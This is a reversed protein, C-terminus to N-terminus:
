FFLTVALCSLGVGAVAAGVAGMRINGRIKDEYYLSLRASNDDGSYQRFYTNMHALNVAYVTMGAATVGLASANIILRVTTKHRCPPKKAPIADVVPEDEINWRASFPEGARVPVINESRVVSAYGNYAFTVSDLVARVEADRVSIGYVSHSIRTHRLSLAAAPSQTKVGNWDFEQAMNPSGATDSVSTFVVPEAATGAASLAGGVNIGTLQEFYIVAGAHINLSDGEPVTLASTAVYEGAPLDGTVTGSIRQREAARAPAACVFVAAVIVAIAISRSM